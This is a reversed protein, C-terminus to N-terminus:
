GTILRPWTAPGVVGDVALGKARQFSEVAAYTVPGFVDDPVCPFGRKSLLVQVSGVIAGTAGAAVDPIMSIWDTPPQSGGGSKTDWYPLTALGSDEDYANRSVWQTMVEGPLVGPRNTWDAGWILAPHNAFITSQSGYAMTKAVPALDGAYQQVYAANISTELDLGTIIGRPAGYARLQSTMAAADAGAGPGPPNSRVFIPLRFRYPIARVEAPTWIHPTDGGGYYAWGDFPVGNPDTKPYSGLPFASDGFLLDRM